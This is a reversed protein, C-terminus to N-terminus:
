IYMFWTLIDVGFFWTILMGIALFPGLVIAPKGNVISIGLIKDQIPLEEADKLSVINNSLTKIRKGYFSMIIGSYIVSLSTGILIAIFGYDLGLILGIFLSWKADGMGMGGKSVFYLIFFLMFFAIGGVYSNIITPQPVLYNIPMVISLIALIIAIIISPYSIVNPIFTTNWDIKGIVVNVTILFISIAWLYPNLDFRFYTLLFLCGVLLEIAPYQWSIKSKCYRCKGRLFLYSFLPILDLANLTHGCSMCASRGNAISRKEPIRFIWVNLFSGWCLGTVFILCLFIYYIFM